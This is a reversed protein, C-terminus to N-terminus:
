KKAGTAPVKWLRIVGAKDGSAIWKGDLSVAVTTVAAEHGKLAAVRKRARWDWVDVYHGRGGVVVLGKTAFAVCRAEDKGIADGDFWDVQATTTGDCVLVHGRADIAAFHLGDPSWSTVRVENIPRRGGVKKGSAPGVVLLQHGAAVVVRKGDRSWSMSHAGINSHWGAKWQHELKASAADLIRAEADGLIVGAKAGNPSASLFTFRRKEAAKPLAPVKKGTKLDWCHLGKESLALVQKEKLLLAMSCVQDGTSFQRMERRAALSWVRVSGDGCSYLTKGDASFQVHKVALTHGKLVSPVAARRITAVVTKGRALTVREVDLSLGAPKDALELDYTGSRLFLRTGSSPGFVTVVKGGQRVIVEVDKDPTEIILEGTDTSIVFAALGAVLVCAAAFLAFLWWWGHRSPPRTFPELAAAAEEASAYREAPAKAMMRGLVENLGDPLGAVPAPPRSRHAELKGLASSEGFPVRGTLLHYLTCGLSYIDSRADARAPGEAQEPAMYDLTGMVVGALEHEGAGVGALGFDLVKVAGSPDRILNGPKIDRHVLGTAHASALGRAADLAAGCADAVPLPGAAVEEALTRGEVYELVLLHSPGAPEADFAAVINNHSLRAAARVEKLFRGAAEAHGLVDSRIVKVAVLRGMILHECLWVAGMGGQGLLRIVRYKPHGALEPPPEIASTERSASALLETLTDRRAEDARALCEPCEDLHAAVRAENTDELKGLLYGDLEEAPPHPDLATM